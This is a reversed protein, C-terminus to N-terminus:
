FMAIEDCDPGKPCEAWRVVGLKAGNGKDVTKDLEACETTLMRTHQRAQSYKLYKGVFDVEKEVVVCNSYESAVLLPSFYYYALGAVVVVFVLVRILLRSIVGM